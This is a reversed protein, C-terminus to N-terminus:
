AHYDKFEKWKDNALVQTVFQHFGPAQQVSCARYLPVVTRLTSRQMEAKRELDQKVTDDKVEVDKMMVQFEGVVEDLRPQVVEPSTQGLRLLLMLGLVKVENVDSLSALVRDTFTPLDIKSFCTGLLTYMTEFATKRNELGDDEIVKWPGMIVERQLEKRVFTEGYLLPQLADLKDVILHPKNQIAANFSALSLRRVILNEDKMLSLFDVIIPSILEDYGNSTDIFTYRVAAAVLARNAPSSQLLQQLQPLFKTPATITLKGICAATVNRIGDDGVTEANNAVSTPTAFLPKWLRDAIAELQASSSHLIVEKVAHLLLLRESEKEASEVKSIIIPLFVDPTGVALNGAAFASASRVEESESQFYSLIKVFLDQRSSLNTIRGIEGVCLLALYADAENATGSQVVQEFSQLSEAAAAPVNKVIAGVGKATTAWAATGGHTADPLGKEGNLNGILQQIAKTAQRSSGDLAVAYASFFSVLSEVLHPNISSKLVALVKPYLQTDVASRSAPQQTLILAATQLATPTDILPGLEVIIGEATDEPLSSGIRELISALCAFETNKSAGKKARRLAVVVQPLTESLWNEFEPGKVLPSSAVQGIVSIATPASSEVALRKSILDLCESYVSTFLDGTHILVNGLTSLAKERVDGDVTNDGLIDITAEFIQRVANELEPAISATSGLPRASNALASATDFAEFSIRQLKDRQCRVIAPVLDKLHAAFVRAPHNDFFVALFSLTAIALSSSTASDVTRLASAAATCIPDVSDALGGELAQVMQRLLVFCQQRTPVSKSSLQTLTAKSLQPLLSRLAPIPGDDSAYDEDMGESRKRKSRSGTVIDSKRVATTQKLLVEFAALVELRVSEERESFRSILVPASSGYIESLLDPRTSIIALLLRAASRRIKWSDDDDDSYDAGEYEDDEEDEEGDSAMDVDDDDGNDVYNPDYRLLSLSKQTIASIYVGMETPCRLVLAELATLAAEVTEVDEPNKTQQLIIEALKKEAALKGVNGVIRGKALSAVVGLWVRGSDGSQSVGATIEKQLTDNFLAPSAAVLSALTPIARKRIAPRATSLIKILASLSSNSVTTSTSVNASFRTFLDTLTQLLESAIQPHLDTTNFLELVRSSIRELDASVQSGSSPMELVVSKLALTSTDRREENGSVVDELLSSIIKSLSTPRAKKVVLAINTVANSKVEQNSDALLKLVMDVLQGETYDDTFHPDTRRNSTVANAAFNKELEKKLDVLAMVRYDPDVNKMKELLGPLQSSLPVPKSM